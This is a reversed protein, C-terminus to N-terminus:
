KWELSYIQKLIPHKINKDVYPLAFYALLEPNESLIEGKATIFQKLLAVRETNLESESICYWIYIFLELKIAKAKRSELEQSSL